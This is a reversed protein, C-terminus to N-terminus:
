EERVKGESCFGNLPMVNAHNNCWYTDELTMSNPESHECERCYCGGTHHVPDIEKTEELENLVALIGVDQGMDFEPHGTNPEYSKYKNIIPTANILRM